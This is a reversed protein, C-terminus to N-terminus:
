WTSCSSTPGTRARTACDRCRTPPRGSWSRGARSITASWIAPSRMTTSSSCGGARGRDLLRSLTGLLWAPHVPKMAYADAGLALGKAQDDISSVVVLPMERTEDRRRVEGIFAWADEGALRIDLVLAVPHLQEILRRADPLTRATVPHFRSGRFYHEYVLLDQASDEVVLVPLRGPELPVAPAPPLGGDRSRGRIAGPCRPSPRATARPARSGVGGGLLTALRRSLPLGLGTGRVRRQVPNEIQGFEEFIASSTRPRSASAPTPWRSPSRDEGAPRASVRIEGRETFKLANSLFNRLIQSVKGEDTHM